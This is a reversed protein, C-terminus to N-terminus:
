SDVELTLTVFLAYLQAPSVDGAPLTAPEVAVDGAHLAGTTLANILPVPLITLQEDAKRADAGLVLVVTFTCDATRLTQGITVRGVNVWGVGARPQTPPLDSVTFGLSAASVAAAIALQQDRISAV